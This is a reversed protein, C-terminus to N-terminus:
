RGAVMELHSQNIRQNLSDKTKRSQTNSLFCTYISTSSDESHATDDFVQWGKIGKEEQEKQHEWVWASEVGLLKLM